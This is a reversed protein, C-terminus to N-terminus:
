RGLAAEVAEILATDNFPKFLCAVAGAALLRPQLSKDGKATIFVIPVRKGRRALLLGFGVAALLGSFRRSDHFAEPIMTKATMSFRQVVTGLITGALEWFQAESALLLWTTSTTPAVPNSGAVDREWLSREVLSLWAGDDHV